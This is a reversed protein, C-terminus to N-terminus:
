LGMYRMLEEEAKEDLPKLIKGAMLPQLGKRRAPKIKKGKLRLYQNYSLLVANGKKYQIRTPIERVAKELIGFLDKRLSTATTKQM